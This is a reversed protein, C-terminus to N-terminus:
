TEEKPMERRWWARLPRRDERVINMGFTQINRGGDSAHIFPTPSRRGQRAHRKGQLARNYIPAPLEPAEHSRGQPHWLRALSTASRLEM